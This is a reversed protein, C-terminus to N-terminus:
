AKLPAMFAKFFEGMNGEKLLKEYTLQRTLRIATEDEQEIYHKIEIIANLLSRPKKDEQTASMEFDVPRVVGREDKIIVDERPDFGHDRLDDVLSCIESCLDEGDTFIPLIVYAYPKVMKNINSPAYKGTKFAERDILNLRTSRGLTQLFRSKEMSGMIMVGTMDPVDIGETLMRIHFVLASGTHQNLDRVFDEKKKGTDGNYGTHSSIYFTKYSADLTAQEKEFDKFEKSEVIKTLQTTDNCSILLKASGKVISQHEKFASIVARAQAKTDGAVDVLHLRPRVIYGQEIMESPKRQCIVPGYFDVNNMGRGSDSKTTRQTATFYFISNTVQKIEKISKFFELSVINHAEDCLVVDINVDSCASTVIDISHYTSCIVLPVNAEKAQEIEKVLSSKNTAKTGIAGRIMKRMATYEADAKTLDFCFDVDKGSHVTVRRAIQGRKALHEIVNKMLQNTLLIRPSAIVYIGFGPKVKISEEIIRSQVTSKGTGTPLIVQGINTAMAANVAETQFAYDLM